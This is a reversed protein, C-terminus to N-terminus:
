DKIFIGDKRLYGTRDKIVDYGKELCAILNTGHLDAGVILTILIDAYADVIEDNNKRNLASLLEQVEELTKIAQTMPNSNPIIGRAEAWRLVKLELETFSSM